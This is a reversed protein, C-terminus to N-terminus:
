PLSNSSSIKKYVGVTKTPIRKKTKQDVRFLGFHIKFGDSWEFNDMLTWHYYGLVPVKDEYITQHLAEMHSLLYRK